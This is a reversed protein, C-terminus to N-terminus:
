KRTYVGEGFGSGWGVPTLIGTDEHTDRRQQTRTRDHDLADVEYVRLLSLRM